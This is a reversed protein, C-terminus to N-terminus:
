IEDLYKIDRRIPATHRDIFETFFAHLIRKFLCEDSDIQSKM